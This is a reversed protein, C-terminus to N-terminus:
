ANVLGQLQANLQSWQEKHWPGFEQSGLFAATADHERDVWLFSGSVGFHGFTTAPADPATWHPNKTGRIELGLGWPCPNHRGYGPVVGALNPFQPTVAETSLADSILTPHLLEQGLILLDDISARGSRAVSGPVDATTMGLPEIVSEEIWRGIDTGTAEAVADGLIEFGANSYVRRKEIGFQADRSEAPLGSAHALLHRITAGEPGAPDGLSIFGRQVAVLTSWAMLLKTVSALPYVTSTDGVKVLTQGGANLAYAHAFPIDMLESTIVAM